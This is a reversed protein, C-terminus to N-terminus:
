IKYKVCDPLAIIPGGRGGGRISIELENSAKSTTVHAGNEAWDDAVTHIRPYKRANHVLVGDGGVFYSHANAVSFNFVRIWQVRSDVEEVVVTTGNHLLLVQGVKLSGAPNWGKGKIYFPHEATAEIKKGSFFLLLKM